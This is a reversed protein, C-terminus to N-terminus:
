LRSESRVRRRYLAAVPQIHLKAALGVWCLSTWKQEPLSVVCMQGCKIKNWM